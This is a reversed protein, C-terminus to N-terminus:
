SLVWVEFVVLDVIWERGRQRAIRGQERGWLRLLNFSNTISLRQNETKM